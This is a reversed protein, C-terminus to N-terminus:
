CIYRGLIISVYSVWKDADSGGSSHYEHRIRSVMKWRIGGNRGLRFERDADM